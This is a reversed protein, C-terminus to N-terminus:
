KLILTPLEHNNNHTWKIQTSVLFTYRNGCFLIYMTDQVDEFPPSVQRFNKTLQNRTPFSYVQELNFALYQNGM